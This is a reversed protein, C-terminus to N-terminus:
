IEAGTAIRGAMTSARSSPRPASLLRMSVKILPTPSLVMMVMHM